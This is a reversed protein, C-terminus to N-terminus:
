LVFIQDVFSKGKRFGGQEEGVLEETIERVRNILIKGYIKGIVSLLCIGRHNRCVEREGKAKYLPVKIGSKWDEPVRGEEWALRCMKWIWDVM